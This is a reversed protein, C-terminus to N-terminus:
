LSWSMPSHQDSPARTLTQGAIQHNRRHLISFLASAFSGRHMTRTATPLTPMQSEWTVHIGLREVAVLGGDAAPLLASAQLWVTGTAHWCTGGIDHQLKSGNGSRYWSGTEM